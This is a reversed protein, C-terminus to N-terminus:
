ISFGLLSFKSYVKIVKSFNILIWLLNVLKDEIMKLNLYTVTKLRKTLGVSPQAQLWQLQNALGKKNWTQLKTKNIHLLWFIKESLTLSLPLEKLNLLMWVKKSSLISHSWFCPLRKLKKNRWILRSKLVILLRTVTKEASQANLQPMPKLKSLAHGLEIVKKSVIKVIITTSEKFKFTLAIWFNKLNLTKREMWYRKFKKSEKKFNSM